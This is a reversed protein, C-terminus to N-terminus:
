GTVKYVHDGNRCRDSVKIGISQGPGAENVSEHEVQMSDVVQQFDTTHGRVHITDGVRLPGTLVIGAVGVHSFYDDVQGIEEEAM